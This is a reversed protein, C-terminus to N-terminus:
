TVVVGAAVAAIVVLVSSEVIHWISLVLGGLRHRRSYGVLSSILGVVGCAFVVAVFTWFLPFPFSGGLRAALFFAAPVLLLALVAVAPGVITCVMSVILIRNAGIRIARAYEPGYLNVNWWASGPVAATYRTWEDGDWWRERDPATWDPYWAPPPSASNPPEPTESM